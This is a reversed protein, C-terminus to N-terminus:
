TWFPLDVETTDPNTKDPYIQTGTESFVMIEANSEKAWEQNLIAGIEFKEQQITKHWYKGKNEWKFGQRILNDKIDYANRVRIELKPTGQSAIPTLSDWDLQGSLPSFLDSVSSASKTEARGYTKGGITTKSLWPRTFGQSLRDEPCVRRFEHPLVNVFFSVLNSRLSKKTASTQIRPLVPHVFRRVPM